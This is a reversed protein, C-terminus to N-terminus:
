HESSAGRGGLISTPNEVMLRRVPEDDLGLNNRLNEATRRMTGASGVLHSRDEAWTALNEDVVVRRDGLTYEGPGLGAGCIADTVVFARDYGCCKLYNGLAVFPVHVGDAIFGISLHESLSLTRQIINDHRSLTMPCGNGLHTFLSLGADIGARLQDLSPDCHGAAVRVGQGTLFTTVRGGRDREPALTVIKALGGAAELLRKAVDLDAPRACGAPHAGIYGPSENLFPGEIHIGWIMDEIAHEQGRVRVINALRRCMAAVDATIVTALIGIVGDDRLRRCVAGVQEVSLHDANFDVEAYGNVQLDVYGNPAHM